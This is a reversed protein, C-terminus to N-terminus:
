MNVVPVLAFSDALIGSSQISGPRRWGDFKHLWKPSASCALKLLSHLFFRVEWNQSVRNWQACQPITTRVTASARHIPKGCVRSTFLALVQLWAHDKSLVYPIAVQSEVEELGIRGQQVRNGAVQRFRASHAIGHSCCVAVWLSLYAWM